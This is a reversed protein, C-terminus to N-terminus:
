LGWGGDANAFNCLYRIIEKKVPEKLEFGTIYHSICLGPLLFLPGGYECSWFGEENQISKLFEFANEAAERATKPKKFDKNEQTGFTLKFRLLILSSLPGSTSIRVLIM